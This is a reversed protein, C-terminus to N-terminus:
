FLLRYRGPIDSYISLTFYVVMTITTHGSPFSPSSASTLLVITDEEVNPRVRNIGYKLFCVVTTSLALSCFMFFFLRVYYKRFRVFGYIAIAFVVAASILYASFSLFILLADAEVLRHTNILKLIDIETIM